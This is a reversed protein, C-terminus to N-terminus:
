RRSSAAGLAPLGPGSTNPTLGDHVHLHDLLEDDVCVLVARNDVWGPKRRVRADLCDKPNNAVGLGAVLRPMASRRRANCALTPDKPVQDMRHALGFVPVGITSGARCVCRPAITGPDLNRREVAYRRVGGCRQRLVMPIRRIPEDDRGRNVNFCRQDTKILPKRGVEVCRETLRMWDLCLWCITVQSLVTVTAVVTPEIWGVLLVLAFIHEM